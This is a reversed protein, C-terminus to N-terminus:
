NQNKGGLAAAIVQAAVPAAQVGGTGGSNELVVAIAVSPDEAPAFAIFWAHAAGGPNQATGTKGAVSIGAVAARRGTGETVVAVMAEKVFEAVWAPMVREQRPEPAVVKDGVKEVLYPRVKYGGNGIAAAITAMHLPTVWVEGQGFGFQARAGTQQLTNLTPLHSATAPVPLNPTSVIDLRKALDLFAKGETRIGIQVFAVNSSHVLAEKLSIVGLVEEEFNHFTHNGITISGNDEFLEEPSLSRSELAACLVFPKWASGPPYRGQLARNFLAEGQDGAFLADDMAAPDFYPVSASALIAGTRADLVVVAGRRGALAKEAAKQINIDITTTINLGKDGGAQREFSPAPRIARGSLEEDYARELGSKGYRSHMYGITHVASLPGTFIRKYSSQRWESVVLPEGHRDLIAGRAIRGEALLPRPNYKHAVLAPGQWVVWYGMWAELLLFATLFGILLRRASVEM